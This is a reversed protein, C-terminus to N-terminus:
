MTERGPVVSALKLSVTLTFSFVHEQPLHWTLVEEVVNQLKGRALGWVWRL